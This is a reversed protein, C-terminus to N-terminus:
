EVNWVDYYIKPCCVHLQLKFFNALRRVLPILLWSPIAVCGCTSPMKPSPPASVFLVIVLVYSKASGDSMRWQIPSTPDLLLDIVCQWGLKASQKERIQWNLSHKGLSDVYRSFPPPSDTLNIRGSQGFPSLDSCSAEKLTGMLNQVQQINWNYKIKM